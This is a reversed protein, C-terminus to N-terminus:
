PKMFVQITAHQEDLVSSSNRQNPINIDEQVNNYDKAMTFIEGTLMETGLGNKKKPTVEKSYCGLTLTVLDFSM